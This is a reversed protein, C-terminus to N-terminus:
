IGEGEVCRTVNYVLLCKEQRGFFFLEIRNDYKSIYNRIISIYIDNDSNNDKLSRYTQIHQQRYSTLNRYAKILKWLDKYM